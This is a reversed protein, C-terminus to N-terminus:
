YYIWADAPYQAGLMSRGTPVRRLSAVRDGDNMVFDKLDNIGKEYESKTAAYRGDNIFLCEKMMAGTELVYHFDDPLLPEDFGNVLDFITRTFDVYETTDQTQIPHWEVALYRSFTRGPEIRALENGAVAADFLSVYGSVASSVYFKVVEEHDTRTSVTGFQVRTVGNLTKSDRYSYGGTTITEIYATQGVDGAATSVAWLGTPAAPQVLVEQFGVVSYRLPYGGTFAQSPDALRLESLPVQRLKHNNTRDTIANIRAVSPPLGTRSKNAKATVAMVDDRLRQIGPSVLMERQTDNIFGTLRTTVAAPPTSTYHFFRYLDALYSTLNM